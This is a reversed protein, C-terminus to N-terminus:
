SYDGGRALLRRRRRRMARKGHSVKPEAAARSVSASKKATLDPLGSRLLGSRTSEAAGARLVDRGGPTVERGGPAADRGEETEARGPAFEAEAEREL